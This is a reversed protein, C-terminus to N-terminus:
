QPMGMEKLMPILKKGMQEAMLEMSACEDTMAYISTSFLSILIITIRTFYKM